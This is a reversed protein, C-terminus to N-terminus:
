ESVVSNDSRRQIDAVSARTRDCGSCDEDCGHGDRFSTWVSLPDRGWLRRGEGDRDQEGMAISVAWDYDVPPLVDLDVGTLDPDVIVQRVLGDLYNSVEEGKESIEDPDIDLKSAGAAANALATPFGGALAYRGMNLPRIKYTNGSPALAVLERTAELDSLTTTKM